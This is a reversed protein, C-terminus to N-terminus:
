IGEASAVADATAMGMLGNSFYLQGADDVVIADVGNLADILALGRELGLVFVSTSLADTSTADEGLITVSRVGRASDGTQPDIIHHYRTGGEEFFREYDGSTSVSVDMLPLVAVNDDKARPNRIGVVWPEGGRDGVIRSDGGASVMGEEIGRRELIRVARDVAYGKAIGGLDIYVAPHAYRIAHRERDLEIHRFDIADIARTLQEDDPRTGARFDYYRGASAYTVDFAGDTVRSFDISREILAFLEEDITVFGEPAERNLRSLESSQSWSSMLEDIRYMEDMVATIADCAGAQPSQVEVAVVTGMIPRSERWWDGATQTAACGEKDIEREGAEVVDFVLVIILLAVLFKFMVGEERMRCRNSGTRLSNTGLAFHCEVRITLLPLDTM